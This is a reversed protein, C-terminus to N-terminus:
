RGRRCCQVTVRIPRNLLGPEHVSQTGASQVHRGQPSDDVDGEVLFHVSSQLPDANRVVDHVVNRPLGHHRLRAWVGVIVILSFAWTLAGSAPRNEGVRLSRVTGHRVPQDIWAGHPKDQASGHRFQPGTSIDAVAIVVTDSRQGTRPVESAGVQM